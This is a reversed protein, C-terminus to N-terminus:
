LKPYLSLDPDFVFDIGEQAHNKFTRGKILTYSLGEPAYSIRVEAKSPTILSNFAGGMERLLIVPYAVQMRATSKNPLTPLKKFTHNM